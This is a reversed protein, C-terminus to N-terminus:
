QKTSRRERIPGLTQATAPRRLDEPESQEVAGIIEQAMLQYQSKQGVRRCRQRLRDDLGLHGLKSEGRWRDVTQARGLLTAAGAQGSM